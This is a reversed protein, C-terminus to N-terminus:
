CAYIRHTKERPIYQIHPIDNPHKAIALREAEDSSDAAFIEGESVAIFQGRCTEYVGLQQAHDSFWRANRETLEFLRTLEPDEPHEEIILESNM